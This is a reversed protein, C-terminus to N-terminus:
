TRQTGERIGKAWLPMVDVGKACIVGGKGTPLHGTATFGQRLNDELAISSRVRRQSSVEHM